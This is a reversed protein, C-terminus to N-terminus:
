AIHFFPIAEELLQAVTGIVPAAKLIYPKVSSPTSDALSTVYKVVIEKTNNNTSEKKGTM